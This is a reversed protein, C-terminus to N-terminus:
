FGLTSRALGHFYLSIIRGNHIRWCKRCAGAYTGNFCAVYTSNTTAYRGMDVAFHCRRFQAVFAICDVDPVISGLSGGRAVNCGSLYLRRDFKGRFYWALAGFPDPFHWLNSTVTCYTCRCAVVCTAYCTGIHVVSVNALPQWFGRRCRWLLGNWFWDVM